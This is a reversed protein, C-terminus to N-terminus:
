PEVVQSLPLVISCSPVSAKRNVSSGGGASICDRTIHLHGLNLNATLMLLGVLSDPIVSEQQEKLVDKYSM